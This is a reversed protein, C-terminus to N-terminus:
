EAWFHETGVIVPNDYDSNELLRYAEEMRINKDTMVSQVAKDLYARYIKGTKVDECMLDLKDGTVPDRLVSM